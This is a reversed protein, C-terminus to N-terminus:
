GGAGAAPLCPPYPVGDGFMGDSGLLGPSTETHGAKEVDSIAARGM